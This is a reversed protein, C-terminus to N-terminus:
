KSARPVSETTCPAAWITLVRGADVWRRHGLLRLGADRASREVDGPEHPWIYETLAGHASAWEAYLLGQDEHLTRLWEGLHEKIVALDRQPKWDVVIVGSARLQAAASAFFPRLDEPPLLHILNLHAVVLDFEGLAPLARVDALTAKANVSESRLTTAALDLMAESADVGVVEFGARHWAVLHWGPGCGLDLLRPRTVARAEADPVLHLEEDLLMLWQRVVEDADVADYLRAYHAAFAQYFDINRWDM